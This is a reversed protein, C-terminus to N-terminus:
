FAGGLPNPTRIGGGRGNKRTLGRRYGKPINSTKLVRLNTTGDTINMYLRNTDSIKSKHNETKPLSTHTGSVSVFSNNEIRELLQDLNLWSASNKKVNDLNTLFQCNAPHSIISPDVKNRWGYEISVIHDRCIGNPNNNPHYIGFQLLLHYGPIVPISYPDFNFQCFKQYLLKDDTVIKGSRRYYNIVADKTSKLKIELSRKLFMGFDTYQLQYKNKIDTPSLNEVFLYNEIIQKVQCVDDYSIDDQKHLVIKCFKILSHKTKPVLNSM